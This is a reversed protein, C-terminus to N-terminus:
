IGSGAPVMSKPYCGSKTMYLPVKTDTGVVQILGWGKFACQDALEASDGNELFPNTATELLEHTMIYAATAVRGLSAPTITITPHDGDAGHFGVPRVPPAGTADTGWIDAVVRAGGTTPHFRPVDSGWGLGDFYGAPTLGEVYSAMFARDEDSWTGHWRLEISVDGTLKSDRGCAGLLVMVAVLWRASM